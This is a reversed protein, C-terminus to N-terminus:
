LRAKPLRESPRSAVVLFDYRTAAYNASVRADGERAFHGLRKYFRWQAVGTTVISYVAIAVFGEFWLGFAAFGAWTWLFTNRRGAVLRARREFLGADDLQSGTMRRYFEGQVAEVLAPLIILAAIAWPLASGSQGAFWWAACLYWGYELIKDIAHELDGWRSFEQRTRALKGDVGDLPGCLLALGLGWWLAGTALAVGAAIGLIATFLTVMNPTIPTPALLRVLADEVWPHIFRAPWDLCGKQAQAVVFNGAQRASANDMPRMWLMPVERRRDRAYLTISELRVREVNTDAALTRILTSGLDWDGITAVVETLQRVPIAMIGVALDHADLREVGPPTVRTGDSVLIAPAGAAMVAAVAREDIVLGPAIVLALATSDQALRAHLAHTSVAEVGDPIPTLPEAGVLLVPACGARVLTRAQREVLSLGAVVLGAVDAAPALLIGIKHM